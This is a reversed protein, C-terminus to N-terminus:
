FNIQCRMLFVRTSNETEVNLSISQGPRIRIWLPRMIVIKEKLYDKVEYPIRGNTPNWIKNLILNAQGVSMSNSAPLRAQGVATRNSAPLRAQGVATRNSAPLRAQGVSMSDYDTLRAECIQHAPCSKFRCPNGWCGRLSDHRGTGGGACL